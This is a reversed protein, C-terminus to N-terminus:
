WYVILLILFLVTVLALGWVLVWRTMHPTTGGRARTTSIHDPERDDMRHRRGPEPEMRKLGAVGARAAPEGAVEMEDQVSWRQWEAFIAQYEAFLEEHLGRLLVWDAAIQEPVPVDLRAPMPTM